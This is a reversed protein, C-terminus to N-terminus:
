GLVARVILVVVLVALVVGVLLPLLVLVGAAALYGATPAGREPQELLARELLRLNKRSARHAVDLLDGLVPVVGLGADILLNGGMRALTPVPVRARVADLVILGSIASGALDGVGPVLGIVPDLGITLDTGPVRLAEDMWHALFRHRRLMADTAATTQTTTM